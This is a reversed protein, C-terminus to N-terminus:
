YEISIYSPMKPFLVDVLNKHSPHVMFDPYITELEERSRYGFLLQTFVLPSSRISRAEGTELRQVDTIAGDEATLQVTYRYFNFNLKETLRRYASKALREEFLPKMKQFIKLYDMVRLQWAYPRTNRIGGVAVMHQTFFDQYSITAALTSLGHQKGIDKLFGLISKTATQDVDTIERLLLEKEEFNYNIRFYTAMEGKEEVAYGDFKYEAIMGTEQQMKWIGEDRITHVYFKEQSKKLLRDAQPIDQSTFPRIKHNIKYEPVKDLSITTRELLPLAYEYGFQRYFYPIGEIASLDYGQDLLQRHYENHLRQQLGQHRYEQLTAVCGLESVKLEIGGVSWSSPIINLGAVIKGCHKIVFFDKLTMRPHHDIWKRVQLDVRSNQGFVKRMLELHQELDGDTDLHHFTFDEGSL